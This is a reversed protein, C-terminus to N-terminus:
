GPMWADLWHQVHVGELMWDREVEAKLRDGALAAADLDRTHARIADVWDKFRNKVLTVPLGGQYPRVDSAVVPYGCAGYELLRLNSKCENFLNQELPALALDLNLRALMAPYREISVPGHFEHLYPRIQEPCMGFFVWDVEGKLEKVVDIILELDGQHSSGGAWGVRPRAGVRRSSQLGRWWAPPLRNHVVRTDPNLGALAEALPETSVVFRDALGVSRRLARLIDKPMHERHANKMPLNPLYDDLEAVKFARTFPAHRRILEIQADSVQRQLIWTDPQVREMEPPSYHRSSFRVDALGTAVMARGPHIMRYHGCGQQDAAMALVVPLPRWPLPNGGLGGDTETEFGAGQLSLNRNYASDHALVPLWKRYMADQEQQFREAKADLVTTDVQKQSVSGEHLLVAHPTWVILYGADRVKLCLDVDNYSVKFDTEDLGGVAEYLSRRVMLCAGTVANYNQDIELRHMYGPEDRGQLGNFPHEAPGRLGLVVGAHQITGDPYLLKAGVIGVEPRLAHNLLADLWDGRLIATDNNLLVVYEGRAQEVARNNIASYNFPHPYRLVRVRSDDMAELGDLWSCAAPQTSNNDVLLIEYNQYATKELLSSVCREVMAFQDKTPIIISVLPTAEHGYRIRYRGPLTADVSAGTYGRLHLHRKISLVEQEHTVLQPMAAVLLPECVHGLGDLGGADILRLLLDFEPAITNETDFGGAQLFTGRNFIWHRALGTPCSLLMDLNFDPRFMADLTGADTRLFEDAYVARIHPANLLELALMSLGQSTFTEGAEVVVMWESTSSTVLENIRRPYDTATATFHRINEGSVLPRSLEAEHSSIDVISKSIASYAQSPAELSQLTAQLKDQSFDRRLIIIEFHPLIDFESFRANILRQQTDSPTRGALWTGLSTDPSPINWGITPDFSSLSQSSLILPKTGTEIWNEIATKQGSGANHSKEGARLILEYAHPTAILPRGFFYNDIQILHRSLSILAVAESIRAEGIMATLPWTQAARLIVAVTEMRAQLSPPEAGSISINKGHVRYDTLNEPIIGMEGQGLLRIWLDYDQVYKILPSYVGTPSVARLDTSRLMCSPSNLCNGALLRWRLDAVEANFFDGIASKEVVQSSGDIVRVHSFVAVHDPNRQLFDIQMAVREPHMRDDSGIWAIFEGRAKSVTLNTNRSIGVNKELLTARIIQPYKAAYEAVIQGTGDSSADDVVVIEINKYTQALCSDLCEAIYARHNYAMVCISVLPTSSPLDNRSDNSQTNLQM